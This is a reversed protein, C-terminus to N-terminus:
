NSFLFFCKSDTKLKFLSLLVKFIYNKLNGTFSHGIMILKIKFITDTSKLANFLM